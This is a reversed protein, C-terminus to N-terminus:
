YLEEGHIDTPLTALLSFSTTDVMNMRNPSALGERVFSQSRNDFVQFRRGFSFVYQQMKGTKRDLVLIDDGTACNHEALCRSRDVFSGVLIQWSANWNQVTYQHVVALSKNFALFSSGGAEPDFLMVSLTPLGFHGVYLVKNTGWGDYSKQKALSLDSKFTLFQASGSSPDYLLVQSRGSGNFDGSYVAWNGNLNHVKQYHTIQLSSNLSIMRAEGLLRDYLFLADQSANVFRGVYVEWANDMLAYRQQRVIHFNKDLSLLMVNSVLGQTSMGPLSSSLDADLPPNLNIHLSSYAILGDGQTRGPIATPSAVGRTPTAEPTPTVTKTPTPSPTMTAEPTPTVTPTPSAKAKPTPTPTPTPTKTPTATPTPSPTPDPKAKPTATPTPSPTAKPTPTPSAKPTPSPTPTPTPTPTKTPTPTVTPTPSPTPTPSAKPTPSPTPSPTPTKTPTPTPSPTPSPTPTKTPTPTPSPEKTPTPTPSPKKTPTPSPTKTPIPSPPEGSTTSSGPTSTPPIIPVPVNLNRNFMFIDSRKGDFRGVYVEWGPGWGPMVIHQKITLQPTLSILQLVGSVRDYLLIDSQGSGTFDGVHIDLTSGWGNVPTKADHLSVMQSIVANSTGSSSAFHSAYASLHSSPNSLRLIDLRGKQRNYLLLDSVGTGTFDANFEQEESPPLGLALQNRTLTNQNANAVTGSNALMSNAQALEGIGNGNVGPLRSFLNSDLPRPFYIFRMEGSQYRPQNILSVSYGIGIYMPKPDGYNQYTVNFSGGDPSVYTVFAVHGAGGFAWIGDARPFVALAGVRPTTGVPLGAREADVIWDAANGWNPPLNYGLLHWQEWGWWICNGGAPFPGPCLQYPNGDPSYFGQKCSQDVTPATHSLASQAEVPPKDLLIVGAFVFLLLIGSLAPLLRRNRQSRCSVPKHRAIPPWFASSFM